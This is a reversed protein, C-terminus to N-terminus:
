KVLFDYQSKAVRINLHQGGVRPLLNLLSQGVEVPLHLLM